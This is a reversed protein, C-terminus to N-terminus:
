QHKKEVCPVDSFCSAGNDEHLRMASVNFRDLQTNNKWRSCAAESLLSLQKGTVFIVGGLILWHELGMNSGNGRIILVRSNTFSNFILMSSCILEMQINPYNEVAEQVFLVFCYM